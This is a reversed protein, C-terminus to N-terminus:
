LDSLSTPRGDTGSGLAALAGRILALWELLSKTSLQDLVSSPASIQMDKPVLSAIVRLYTSPDDQWVRRISEAGHEDFDQALAAIFAESLRHKSGKPRGPGGPNGQAFRGNGNRM